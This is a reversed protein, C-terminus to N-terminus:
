VVFSKALDHYDTSRSGSGGGGVGGNYEGGVVGDHVHTYSDSGIGAGKSHIQQPWM